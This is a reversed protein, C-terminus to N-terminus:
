PGRGDARPDPPHGPGAGVRRRVEPDEVRHALPALEVGITVVPLASLADIVEPELQRTPMPPLPATPASTSPAADATLDTLDTLTADMWSLDSPELAPHDQSPPAPAPPPLPPSFPDPPLEALDPLLPLSEGLGDGLAIPEPAPLAAPRPPPVEFGPLDLRVLRFAHTPM